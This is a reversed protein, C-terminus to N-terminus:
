SPDEEIAVAVVRAARSCLRAADQKTMKKTVYVLGVALFRCSAPQHERELVALLM